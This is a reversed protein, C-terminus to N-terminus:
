ILWLEISVLISAIVLFIGLFYHGLGRLISNNEFHHLFNRLILTDPNDTLNSEILKHEMAAPTGRTFPIYVLWVVLVSLLCVWIYIKLNKWVEPWVSEDKKRDLFARVVGFIIFVGFLLVSSFKLLQALALGLAALVINRRSKERMVEAFTYTAVTFGLAAAIDTTVYRGHALIDPYFAFLLLTILGVKRGFLKKTWLYILYGLLVMMLMIPWRSSDLVVKPDNGANYLMYWGADWQLDDGWSSNAEPGVIQKNLVLPLAAWAKALPPHEPNLRYDADKLYTYGAPIHAVEDVIASDGPDGFAGRSSYLAMLFMFVLIIIAIINGLLNKREKLNKIM